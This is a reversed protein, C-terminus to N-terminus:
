FTLLSDGKHGAGAEKRMPERTISDGKQVKYQLLVMNSVQQEEANACVM